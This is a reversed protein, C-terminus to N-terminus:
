KDKRGKDIDWDRIFLTLNSLDRSRIEWPLFFDRRFPAPFCHWLYTSDVASVTAKFPLSIKRIFPFDLHQM